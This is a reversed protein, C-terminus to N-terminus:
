TGDDAGDSAAPAPSPADAGEAPLDPVVGADALPDNAMATPSPAVTAAAEPVAANESQKAREEIVNALGVILVIGLLLSIGVQLRQLAQARTGALPSSATDDPRDQAPM